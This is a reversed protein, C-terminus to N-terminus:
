SRVEEEEPIGVPRGLSAMHKEDHLWCAARHEPGVPELPPKDVRCREMVYPCRPNFRCGPPFHTAAPVQGRIAYLNTRRSDPEPGPLDEPPADRDARPISRFLGLTYPHKPAHFLERVPAQEVIEGAYMIAVDHATEAVVGLDHTILLLAMGESEQLDRLLDLIQAQITVDLATTPEDAILLSPGCALAMAIMARQRMGGSMEHPFNDIRDEPSPIGVKRFLEVAQERAERKSVDRHVRIASAIQNGVRFVPNLSTMPEQFIMSIANGRYRRMRRLSVQALDMDGFLIRGQVIRGPPTAVLRMISLATVSKGCGSEGVLALTRGPQVEFSVGDVARAVGDDTFFHTKLDEVRLVPEM